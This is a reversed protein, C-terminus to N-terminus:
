SVRPSGGAANLTRQGLCLGPLSINATFAQASERGALIGPRGAVRARLSGHVSPLTPTGHGGTSGEQGGYRVLASFHLSSPLCTQLESHGSVRVWGTHILLDHPGLPCVSHPGQPAAAARCSEWAMSVCCPPGRRKGPLSPMEAWGQPRVEKVKQKNQGGAGSPPSWSKM